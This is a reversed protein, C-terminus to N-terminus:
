DITMRSPLQPKVDHLSISHADPKEEVKRSSILHAKLGNDFNRLCIIANIITLIILLITIVAFATLSRRVAQYSDKHDPQYIRVLKFIFYSLGGLYLIIVVFMGPKNEKRTFYAAALLIGITIPITAITLAFEPDTKQAVVVVFQIIFGLFFFFDFKLLAIYIQYHLFRKKMRYDAGINKLIDWAFEQYLKWAIFGMCVTALGIVAPIAVLYPKVDGWLETSLTEPKLANFEGLITIATQIQEIQIATYVLLALNAICVGIVQITNKMRLADWVVVLEYLFGFIFLTLFTPITKYQSQVKPLDRHEGLSTQFKGFVYAEFVLCIIAQLTTVGMFAASWKTKIFGMSDRHVSRSPASPTLGQRHAYGQDFSTNLNANEAYAPQMYSPQNVAPQPYAQGYNQSYDPAYEGSHGYTPSRQSNFHSFGPDDYAEKGTLKNWVADEADWCWFTSVAAEAESSLSVPPCLHSELLLYMANASSICHWFWVGKTEAGPADGSELPLACIWELDVLGTVNWEEDVFINSAHLDTLQLAFPGSRLYRRVHRHSLVRLLTKVAMQARCDDGSYVANPQSLLRNDHFILMDSVFADTCGFTEDRSMTRAAGDNDLIMVSCSLPRNALTVTGNDHFQFPGIRAQPIGALSLM